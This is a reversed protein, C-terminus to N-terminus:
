LIYINYFSGTGSQGALLVSGSFSLARELSSLLNVVEDLLHMKM